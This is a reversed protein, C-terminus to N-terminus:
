TLGPKKLSKELLSSFFQSAPQTEQQKEDVISDSLMNQSLKATEPDFNTASL